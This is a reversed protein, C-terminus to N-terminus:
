EERRLDEALDPPEKPWDTCTGLENLFADDIDLKERKSLRNALKQVVQKKDDLHILQLPDSRGPGFLKARRLRRRFERKEDRSMLTVEPIINKYWKVLDKGAHCILVRDTTALKIFFSFHSSSPTSPLGSSSALLYIM